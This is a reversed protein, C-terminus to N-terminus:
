MIEHTTDEKYPYCVFTPPQFISRYTNLSILAIASTDWDFIVANKKKKKIGVSMVGEATRSDVRAVFCAAPDSSIRPHSQLALFLLGSDWNQCSNGTVQLIIEPRGCKSWELAAHSEWCGCEAGHGQM